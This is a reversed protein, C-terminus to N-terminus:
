PLRVFLQSCPDARGFVLGSHAISRPVLLLRRCRLPTSLADASNSVALKLSMSAQEGRDMPSACMSQMRLECHRRSSLFFVLLYLLCNSGNRALLCTEAM